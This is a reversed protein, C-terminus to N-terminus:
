GPSSGTQRKVFGRIHKKGYWILKGNLFCNPMMKTDLLPVISKM